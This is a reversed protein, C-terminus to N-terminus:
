GSQKEIRVRKRVCNSIQLPGNRGPSAERDEVVHQICSCGMIQEVIAQCAGTREEGDYKAYGSRRGNVNGGFLGNTGHLHVFDSSPYTTNAALHTPSAYLTSRTPPTNVQLGNVGSIRKAIDNQRIGSDRALVQLYIGNNIGLVIMLTDEYVGFIEGNIAGVPTILVAIVPPFRQNPFASGNQQAIAIPNAQTITGGEGKPREPSFYFQEFVYAM